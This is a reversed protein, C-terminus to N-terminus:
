RGPELKPFHPYHSVIDERRCLQTGPRTIAAAGAAVALHLADALLWGRSLAWVMAGLFSDGAGITSRAKIQPASVRIVGDSHALVAGQAGLTVAVLEAVGRHVLDAAAESVGADDLAHGVYSELEGRSPKVLYVKAQSLTAKLGEGSSDLVFRAGKGSAARAIEILIDASCGKPLSGSAVVYGGDFARVVDMFTGIEAETVMPGSPVFRYDLGSAKENVAFAVRTEGAIEIKQRPVDEKGLLTDLWMGTMGGALFVAEVEGGLRNIVRAVNIGGGGPDYRANETRMKRVPRVSEVDSFIDITPNLTLTLIQSM